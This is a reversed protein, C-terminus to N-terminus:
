SEMRFDDYTEQISQLLELHTREWVSLAGFFRKGEGDDIRGAFRSYFDMFKRELEMATVIISLDGSNRIEKEADRGKFAHLESLMKETDARNDLPEIWKESEELSKRANELMRVHRDEERSLFELFPKINQNAVKGANESYFDRGKQEVRMAIDIANSVHFNPSSVDVDLEKAFDNEM